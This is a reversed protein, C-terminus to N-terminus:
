CKYQWNGPMFREAFNLASVRGKQLWLKSPYAPGCYKQSGDKAKCVFFRRFGHCIHDGFDMAKLFKVQMEEGHEAATTYEQIREYQHELDELEKFDRQDQTEHWKTHVKQLRDPFDLLEMM